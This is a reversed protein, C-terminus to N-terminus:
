TIWIAGIFADYGGSAANKTDVSFLIEHEGPIVNFSASVLVQNILTTASYLDITGIANGDRTLTLIGSTAGKACLINVNHAGNKLLPILRFAEFQVAPSQHWCGGFIQNAIAQWAIANGAMTDSAIHLHEYLRPYVQVLPPVDIGLRAILEDIQAIYDSPPSVFLETEKLREVVGILVPIWTENFEVHILNDEDPPQAPFPFQEDPFNM